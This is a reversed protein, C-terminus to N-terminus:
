REMLGNILALVNGGLVEHNYGGELVGFCGGENQEAAARVLKGISFYDETWLLSGWDDRHHDFGASIGILDVPHELLGKEIEVLYAQRDTAAVNHVTVYPKSELINITGDGYHLDIDLVYASKLQGRRKLTVLAIAMNNFYCFGWSANSSAHHGPPRIIGFAPEHLGLIATQIAGGAALAAIDYLGARRINEVHAKTHVNLIDKEIAPRASVVDIHPEIVTMIAEMRGASAAPDATYVTYFDPHFVVKM